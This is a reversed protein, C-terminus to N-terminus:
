PLPHLKDIRESGFDSEKLLEFCVEADPNPNIVNYFDAKKRVLDARILTSTPSGFVYPEGLLISRCVNRGPIVPSGLPILRDWVVEKGRLGYAGVIGIEPHREALQVMKEVCEPFLLDDAHVVKCYKSGPALQRMAHNLNDYINLFASNNHVRIRPDKRAYEEAIERTKDTSCNNVICYDWNKYSQNLVSEICEALYKEGNYVPTIISVLPESNSM